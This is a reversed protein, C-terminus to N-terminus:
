RFAEVIGLGPSGIGFHHVSWISAYIIVWFLSINEKSTLNNSVLLHTYIFFIWVCIWRGWDMGTIFLPIMFLLSVIMIGRNMKHYGFYFVPLLSLFIPHFYYEYHNNIAIAAVKRMADGPTDKLWAIAGDFVQPTLGKRTLSECIGFVTYKDGHYIMSIVLGVVAAALYLAIYIGYYYNKDPRIRFENYLLYIFYPFTFVAMEHSFVALLYTMFSAAILVNNYKCKKLGIVLLLFSLFILTEKRFGGPIDYFPFLFVFAPSFIFLLDSINRQKDFFLRLILYAIALYIASQVVFVLWLLNLGLSSLDFLIEGILGRRVFGAQYNILWDGTKFANGGHIIQWSYRVIFTIVIFYVWRRIAKEYKHADGQYVFLAKLSKNGNTAM